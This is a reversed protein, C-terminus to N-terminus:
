FGYEAVLALPVSLLTRGGAAVNGEGNTFSGGDLRGGLEVRLRLREIVEVRYGFAVQIGAGTIQLDDRRDTWVYQYSLEPSLEFGHRHSGALLFAVRLPVAFGREIARRDEKASTLSDYRVGIELAVRPTFVLRFAAGAGYFIPTYLTTYYASDRSGDLLAVLPTGHVGAVVAFRDRTDTQQL